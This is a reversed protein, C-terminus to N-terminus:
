IACINKAKYRNNNKHVPIVNQGVFIAVCCLIGNHGREIGGSDDLFGALHACKFQAMHLSYHSLARAHIQSKQGAAGKGQGFDHAGEERPIRLIRRGTATTGAQHGAGIM